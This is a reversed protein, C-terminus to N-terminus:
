RVLIFIGIFVIIVGAIKLLNPKEINLFYAIPVSIVPALSSLSAAIALKTHSLGYVFFLAGGFGELIFVWSYKKFDTAQILLQNTGYILKGIIPCLFMAIFMRFVNIQFVNIQDSAKAASYANLAWLLSTIIALILGKQTSKRNTQSSEYKKSGSLIVIVTGSVILFLSIWKILTFHQNLFLVGFLASWLPYTSGIALASPLGLYQVSQLLLYDAFAYSCLISIFLWGIRYPDIGEILSHNQTFYFAIVFCFFAILARSFNITSAGYKKFLLTYISVGIAWTVSAAFSSLAGLGM